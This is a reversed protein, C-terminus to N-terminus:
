ILGRDRDRITFAFGIEALEEGFLKGAVAEHSFFMPRLRCRRSKAPDDIRDVRRCVEDSANGNIAVEDADLIFPIDDASKTVHRRRASKIMRHRPSSKQVFHDVCEHKGPPEAQPLAAKNDPFGSTRGTPGLEMRKPCSAYRSSTRAPEAIIPLKQEQGLPRYVNDQFGHGRQPVQRSKQRNHLFCPPNERVKVPVPRDRPATRDGGIRSKM